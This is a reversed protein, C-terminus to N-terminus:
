AEELRKTLLEFSKSRFNFLIMQGIDLNVSTYVAKGKAKMFDEITECVTITDYDIEDWKKIYTTWPAKLKVSVLCAEYSEGEVGDDLKWRVINHAIAESYGSKTDLSIEKGFSQEFELGTFRLLDDGTLETLDHKNQSYIGAISLQM